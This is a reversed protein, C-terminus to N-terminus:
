TLVPNKLPEIKKLKEYLKEAILFYDKYKQVQPYKEMGNKFRLLVMRALEEYMPNGALKAIIMKYYWYNTAWILKVGELQENVVLDMKRVDDYEQLTPLVKEELFSILRKVFADVEVLTNEEIFMAGDLYLSALHLTYRESRADQMKKLDEDTLFSEILDYRKRTSITLSIRTREKNVQLDFMVLNKNGGEEKTYNVIYDPINGTERVFFRDQLYASISSQIYILSPDTIM